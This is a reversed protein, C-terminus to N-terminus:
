RIPPWRLCLNQEMSELEERNKPFSIKKHVTYKGAGNGKMYGLGILMQTYEYLMLRRVEKEYIFPSERLQIENKRIRQSFRAMMEDLALWEHQPFNKLVALWYYFQWEAPHQRCLAMKVLPLGIVPPLLLPHHGSEYVRRLFPDQFTKGYQLKAEIWKRRAELWDPLSLAAQDIHFQIDTFPFHFATLPKEEYRAHFKVTSAPILHSLICIRKSFPQYSFLYFDEKRAHHLFSLQFESCIYHGQHTKRFPLGGLIWVPIIHQSKYGKSRKLLQAPPIPSCQYEIAFLQGYKRVLLDARQQIPPLYHEISVDLGQGTLWRYLDKKGLLHMESEPESYASCQSRSHHAFHPTIKTGIKLVLPERCDRCYFKDTEKLAQLERRSFRRTLLVLNGDQNVASLM